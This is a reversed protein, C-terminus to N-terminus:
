KDHRQPELASNEKSSSPTSNKMLAKRIIATGKKLRASLPRAIRKTGAVIVRNFRRTMNVVPPTRLMYIVLSLTCICTIATVFLGFWTDFFGQTALYGIIGEKAPPQVVPKMLGAAEEANPMKYQEPDLMALSQRTALVVGQDADDLMPELLTLVELRDTRQSGLAHVAAIRKNVDESVLNKASEDLRQATELRNASYWAEWETKEAKFNANSLQQLARLTSNVVEPKGELAKILAPMARVDGGSGLCTAAQNAVMAEEHFLLQEIMERQTVTVFGVSTMARLAREVVLADRHKLRPVVVDRAPRVAGIAIHMLVQGADEAKAQAFFDELHQLALQDPLKGVMEMASQVDYNPLPKSEGAQLVCALMILVIVKM